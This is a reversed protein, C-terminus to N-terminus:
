FGSLTDNGGAVEIINLMQLNPGGAMVYFRAHKIGTAYSYSNALQRAVRGARQASQDHDLTLTILVSYPSSLAVGTVATSALIREKWAQFNQNYQARFAKRQAELAAPQEEIVKNEQKQRTAEDEEAKAERATAGQLAHATAHDAYNLFVLSAAGLLVSLTAALFRKKNQPMSDFM